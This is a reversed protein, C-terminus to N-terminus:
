SFDAEAADFLAVDPAEPDAASATRANVIEADITVLAVILSRRRPELEALRPARTIARLASIEADLKGLAAVLQDRRDELEIHRTRM